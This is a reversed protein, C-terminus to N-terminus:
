GATASLGTPASPLPKPGCQAVMSVSNSAMSELGATDMATVAASDSNSLCTGAPLVYVYSTAPAPIEILNDLATIYLRTKSIESLALPTGNTRTTPMTWSFTVTAAKPEVPTPPTIASAAAAFFTTVALAIFVIRMSKM